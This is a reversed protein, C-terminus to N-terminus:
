CEGRRKEACLRQIRNFKIFKFVLLKKKKLKPQLLCTNKDLEIYDEWKQLNKTKIDPKPQDTSM